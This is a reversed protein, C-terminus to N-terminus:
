EGKEDPAEKKPEGSVKNRHEEADRDADRAAVCLSSIVVGYITGFAFCGLAILVCAVVSIQADLFHIM